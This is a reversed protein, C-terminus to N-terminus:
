VSTAQSTPTEWLTVYAVHLNQSSAEDASQIKSLIEDFVKLLHEALNESTPNGPMLYPKGNRCFKSSATVLEVDNENLILNHDLNEDIWGGLLKKIESFDILRGVSDLKSGSIAVEVKWRHGHLFACKGEHQMLRHAADFEFTKMVTIM